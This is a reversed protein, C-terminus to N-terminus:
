CIEAPHLRRTDHQSEGTRAAGPNIRSSTHSATELIPIANTKINNGGADEEYLWDVDDGPRSFRWAISGTPDYNPKDLCTWYTNYCKPTGTATCDGVGFRLACRPQTVEAIVVPVRGYTDKDAM